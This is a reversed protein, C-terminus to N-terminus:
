LLFSDEKEILAAKDEESLNNWNDYQQTEELDKKLTISEDRMQEIKSLVKVATRTLTRHIIKLETSNNNQLDATGKEIETLRDKASKIKNRNRLRENIAANKDSNSSTTSNIVENLEVEFGEMTKLNMNIKTSEKEYKKLLSEKAEEIAEGGLPVYNAINAIYESIQETTQLIKFKFVDIKRDSDGLPADASTFDVSSYGKESSQVYQISYGTEITEISISDTSFSIDIVGTFGTSKLKQFQEKIRNKLKLTGSEANLRRDKAETARNVRPQKLSGAKWGDEWPAPMDKFEQEVKDRIEQQKDAPLSM